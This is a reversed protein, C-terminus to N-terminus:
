PNESPAADSLGLRQQIRELTDRLPADQHVFEDASVSGDLTDPRAAVVLLPDLEKENLASRLAPVLAPYEAEASCLVLVDPVERAAADAVDLPADFKLHEHVEFGAVGFFNRAFTARASRPGPPGLPALFVLPAGENERAFTETRLRLREIGRAVRVRPLPDLDTPGTQLNEMLDFMSSGGDLAVHLRKLSVEELRLSGKSGNNCTPYMDLDKLRTEELDPYHNTGVLVRERDDVNQRREERVARIEEQVRGDRLTELIGGATEVEQFQSWARRALQDTAAEVYYAGAAPDAVRDFHAEDRLILQVNRAIRSGFADPPRLSADYPRVSLVDCGGIIAAMAATTGRLMNVHPAYLTETRRSTEAQVFLDSPVYDIAEDREEAYADIVQPVLLRLARLKAIEVFYSTSCSVLVQLHPLLASLDIGRTSLQALTESLAGLGYSLEQVASAGADHYPRLDVSVTRVSAGDVHSLLDVTLEFATSADRITGTALAAVPDYGITGSWRSPIGNQGIAQRLASALVVAGTGRDLHVDIEDLSCAKLLRELVKPTDLHLGESPSYPDLVLGLDSCGGEVATQALTVAEDPDPHRLNQRVRWDNPPADTTSLPPVDVQDSLHSVAELDERQLYASLSIGDISDWRLVDALDNRALDARAKQKWDEPSTPPFEDFM